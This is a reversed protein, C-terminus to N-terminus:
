EAHIVRVALSTFTKNQRESERLTCTPGMGDSRAVIMGGIDLCMGKWEVQAMREDALLEDHRRRWGRSESVGM